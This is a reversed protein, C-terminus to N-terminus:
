KSLGTLDKQDAVASRRRKAFGLGALALTVIWWAFLTPFYQCLKSSSSTWIDILIQWAAYAPLAQGWRYFGPGDELPFCTATVNLFIFTVIIAPYAAIHFLALAADLFMYYIHMLLWLLMWTMMFQGGSVDWDERFAWIFSTTLLGALLTFVLSIFLLLLGSAVASPKSFVAYKSFTQTFAILFMNQQVIAMAMTVTNYFVKTVQPARWPSIDLPIIPELYASLASHSLNQAVAFLINKSESSEQYVTQTAAFLQLINPRIVSQSVAPYRIENWVFGFADSTNYTGNPHAIATALRESAGAVIFMAGWYEQQRIAEILTDTMPYHSANKVVLTPFLSGEFSQYAALLSQTLASGNDYDVFLITFAHARTAQEFTSGYLYILNLFFLLLVVLATVTTFIAFKTYEFSERRPSGEHESFNGNRLSM